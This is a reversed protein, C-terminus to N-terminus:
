KCYFPRNNILIEKHTWKLSRIGFKLRYIDVLGFSSGHVSHLTVKFTYLYAPDDLNMNWPWWLRPEVISFNGNLAVGVYTLLM